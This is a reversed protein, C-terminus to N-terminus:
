LLCQFSVPKRAPSAEILLRTATSANFYERRRWLGKWSSPLPANKWPPVDNGDSCAAAAHDTAPTITWSYGPGKVFIMAYPSDEKTLTERTFACWCKGDSTTIPLTIPLRTACSM